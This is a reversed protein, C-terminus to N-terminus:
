LSVWCYLREDNTRAERAFRVLREVLDLVVDPTVSRKRVAPISGWRIAVDSLEADGVSALTDRVGMDFETVWPGQSWPDDGTLEAPDPLESAPWTLATQVLDKSMPVRRIVAILEPLLDDHDMGTANIRGFADLGTGLPDGDGSPEVDLLGAEFLDRRAEEKMARM